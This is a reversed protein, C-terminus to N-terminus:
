SALWDDFYTCSEPNVPGGEECWEFVPCRGCPVETLGNTNARLEFSEKIGKVSKLAKGGMVKVVRGDWYLLDVLRSADSETMNADTLRSANLAKAVDKVTPYGTYGPPLPWPEASKMANIDQLAESPMVKADEAGPAATRSRKTGKRMAEGHDWSRSAIFRYACEAMHYVFDEDLLGDTYFPGGTVDDSPELEALMVMKRSPFKANSVVKILKRKTLSSVAKQVQQTTMRSRGAIHRTWIADRQATDIYSFVITEDQNLGRYRCTTLSRLSATSRGQLTSVKGRGQAACGEM